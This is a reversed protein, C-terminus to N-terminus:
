FDINLDEEGTFYFKELQQGLAMYRNSTSKDSFYSLLYGNYVEFPWDSKWPENQEWQIKLKYWGPEVESFEYKGKDTSTTDAYERSCYEEDCDESDYAMLTVVAGKIPASDYHLTGRITPPTPTPTM